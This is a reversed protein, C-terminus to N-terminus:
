KKIQYCTVTDKDLYCKELFCVCRGDEATTFWGECYGGCEFTENQTDLKEIYDDATMFVLTFLWKSM